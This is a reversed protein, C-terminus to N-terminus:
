SYTRLNGYVRHLRVFMQETTIVLAVYLVAILMKIPFDNACLASDDRLKNVFYNWCFCDIECNSASIPFYTVHLAIWIDSTMLKQLLSAKSVVGFLV